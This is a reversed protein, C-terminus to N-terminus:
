RSRLSSPAQYTSQGHDHLDLSFESPGTVAVRDERTRQHSNWKSCFSLAQHLEQGLSLSRHDLPSLLIPVSNGDMPSSPSQSMTLVTKSLQMVSFFLRQYLSLNEETTNVHTAGTHEDTTVFPNEQSLFSQLGDLAAIADRMSAFVPPPPGYPLSPVLPSASPQWIFDAQGGTGTSEGTAGTDWRRMESLQQLLLRQQPESLSRLQSLVHQRSEPSQVLAQLVERLQEPTEHSPASSPPQVGTAGESNQSGAPPPAYQENQPSEVLIVGEIAPLDIGDNRHYKQYMKYRMGTRREAQGHIFPCYYRHCHSNRQYAVCDVTKYFLPHYFVEEASHAYPCKNGKTCHNARISEKEFDVDVLNCKIQCYKICDRKNHYFVRRRNWEINHSYQCRDKGFDCGTGGTLRQCKSTRFTALDEESLLPTYAM